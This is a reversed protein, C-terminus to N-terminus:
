TLLRNVIVRTSILYRAGETADQKLALVPNKWLTCIAGALAEADEPPVAIGARAEFL